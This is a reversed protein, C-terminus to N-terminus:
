RMFYKDGKMFLDKGAARAVGQIYADGFSWGTIAVLEPKTAGKACAAAVLASKSGPKNGNGKSATPAKTAVPKTAVPTAAAKPPAATAPVDWDLGLRRRRPAPPPPAAPRPVMPRRALIAQAKAQLSHESDDTRPVMPRRQIAIPKPAEAQENEADEGESEETTDTKPQVPPMYWDRKPGEMAKWPFGIPVAPVNEDPQTRTFEVYERDGVPVDKRYVIMRINAGILPQWYALWKEADERWIPPYIWLHVRQGSHNPPPAAAPTSVNAAAEGIKFPKRRPAEDTVVTTSVPEAANSDPKTIDAHGRPRKQTAVKKAPATKKATAKKAVSKKPATKKPAAKTAARKAAKKAM